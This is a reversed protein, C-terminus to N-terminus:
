GSKKAAVCVFANLHFSPLFFFPLYRIRGIGFKEKICEVIEPFDHLHHAKIVADYDIDFKSEMFRKTTLERGLKYLFGGEAPLAVLLAGAPKLVRLIEDLCRNIDPIHELMYISILHNVSGSAFPLSEANLAVLQSDPYKSKFQMLNHLSLDVRILTDPKFMPDIIQAGQGIGLDLFVKGNIGKLWRYIQRHGLNQLWGVLGSYGYEFLEDSAEPAWDSQFANKDAM